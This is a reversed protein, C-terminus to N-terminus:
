EFTSYINTIKWGRASNVMTVYNTRTFGEYKMEVKAITVDPTSDDVSTSITCNQEVNKDAQVSQIFEAKGFVLTESGRAVSYKLHDDLLANLGKLEGHSIANVYTTVDENVTAGYNNNKITTANAAGFTLVIALGVIGTKLTKM